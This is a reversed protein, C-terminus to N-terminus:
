SKLRVMRQRTVVSPNGVTTAIHLSTDSDYNTALHNTENTLAPYNVLRKQQGSFPPHM